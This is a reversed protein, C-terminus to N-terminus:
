KQTWNSTLYFAITNYDKNYEISIINIDTDLHKTENDRIDLIRM